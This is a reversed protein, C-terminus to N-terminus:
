RLARRASEAYPSGPYRALFETALREAQANDGLAILAEITLADREQVLVGHPFDRGLARLTALAGRANGGRLASRAEAMRRSELAPGEDVSPANPPNPAPVPFSAVSRDPASVGATEAGAGPAGFASGPAEVAGRPAEVVASPTPKNEVGPPEPATSPQPLDPTPHLAPTPARTTPAVSPAGPARRAPAAPAHPAPALLHEVGVVSAATVTGLLVGALGMKVLSLAVASKTATAGLAAGAAALPLKRGLSGWLAAKAGRPVALNMGAALARREKDTLEGTDDLWRTPDKM